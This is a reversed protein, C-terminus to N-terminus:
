AANGAGKLRYTQPSAGEFLADDGPILIGLELLRALRYPTVAFSTELGIGSTTDVTVFGTKRIEGIVALDKNTPRKAKISM